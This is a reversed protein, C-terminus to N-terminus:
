HGLAKVAHQPPGAHKRQNHSQSAATAHAPASSLAHAEAAARVHNPTHVVNRVRANAIPHAGNAVHTKVNSQAGTAANATKTAGHSNVQRSVQAELEQSLGLTRTSSIKDAMQNVMLDQYISTSVGNSAYKSKIAPKQADNIIQRLLVAEFQRTMESTKQQETLAKSTALKDLPIDAPNVKAHPNIPSVAM